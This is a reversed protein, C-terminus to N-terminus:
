GTVTWTLRGSGTEKIQVHHGSESSQIRAGDKSATWSIPGSLCLQTGSDRTVAAFDTSITGHAKGGTVQGDFDFHGFWYDYLHFAFTGDNHIRHPRGGGFGVTGYADSGACTAQVEVDIVRVATGTNTHVVLFDIPSGQTTSGIFEVSGRADATAGSHSDWALAAAPTACVLLGVMAASLWQKRRM